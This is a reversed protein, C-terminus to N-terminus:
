KYFELKGDIRKRFKADSKPIITYYETFDGLSRSLEIIKFAKKDKLFVLLNINDDYTIGHNSINKLNLNLSDEIKQINTYPSLAILENWKEKSDTLDITTVRSGRLALTILETDETSNLLSKYHQNGCSVILVLFISFVIKKM